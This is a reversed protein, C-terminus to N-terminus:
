VRSNMRLFPKPRVQPSKADKNSESPKQVTLQQKPKVISVGAAGGPPSIKFTNAQQKSFLVRVTRVEEQTSALTTVLSALALQNEHQISALTTVLSALALQNEHMLRRIHDIDQKEQDDNKVSNHVHQLRVDLIKLTRQISDLQPLALLQIQPPGQNQAPRSRRHVNSHRETRGDEVDRREVIMLLIVAIVVLLEREHRELMTSM